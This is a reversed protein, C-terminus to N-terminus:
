TLINGQNILSQSKKRAPSSYHKLFKSLTLINGQNILSQSTFEGTEYARVVQVKTLINGQNILSQSKVADLKM